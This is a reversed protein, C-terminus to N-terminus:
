IHNGFMEGDNFFSLLYTRLKLADTEDDVRGGYIANELLGHLVEWQPAKASACMTQEFPGWVTVDPLCESRLQSAILGGCRPRRKVQSRCGLIRLVKDVGSPHIDEKGTCGCPVM